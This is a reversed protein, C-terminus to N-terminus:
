VYNSIASAVQQNLGVKQVLNTVLQSSIGGIIPNSAAAAGGNFLSTLGSINGSTVENILGDAVTKKATDVTKNAQDPNLNFKSSLQDLLEGKASSLISDLM